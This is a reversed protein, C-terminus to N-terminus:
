AGEIIGAKSMTIIVREILGTFSLEIDAYLDGNAKTLPTNNSDDLVIKAAQSFPLDNDLAQKTYEPSFFNALALRLNERQTTTNLQFIISDFSELLTNMYHSFLERHHKFRFNTDSSLMRYNWVVYDAGKKLILQVGLPNLIEENPIIETSGSPRETDLPTGIIKTLAASIGAAPIHYGDALAAVAAEMGLIMGNTPVLKKGSGLPNSIYIYGPWAGVMLDGKGIEGVFNEVAQEDLINAPFELRFEYNLSEALDRAARQVTSTTVGPVAIKVLGKNKGRLVNLVNNDRALATQFYTDMSDSHVGDYGSELQQAYDVLYEAYKYLKAPSSGETAVSIEYNIPVNTTQITIVTGVVNAIKFKGNNSSNTAEAILITDGAKLGSVDSANVVTITAPNTFSLVDVAGIRLENISDVYITNYTNDTVRFGIRPNGIPDPYVLGDILADPELPDITILIQEGTALVPSGNDLTFSIGYDSLTDQCNFQNGITGSGLSGFRESVVTFTLAATMTITLEDQVVNEGTANFTVSYGPVDGVATAVRHGFIEKKLNSKNIQSILGYENAPRKGPGVSGTNDDTVRIEVNSPDDNIVNVFYNKNKSDLSLNKYQTVLEQNVYIEMGFETAPNDEGRVFKVALHKEQDLYSDYNELSLSYILSSSGSIAYDAAIDQDAEMYLIGAADNSVVTYTKTTIGIVRLTAGQWENPKMVTETDVAYVEPSGFKATSSVQAINFQKKGAWAGPTYAEITMVKNPKFINGSPITRGHFEKSAKVSTGDDIRVFSFEGAGNAADFFDIASQPAYSYPTLYGGIRKFNSRSNGCYNLNCILGREFMGFFVTTGLVAPVIAQGGKVERVRTGAGRVPGFQRKIEVM